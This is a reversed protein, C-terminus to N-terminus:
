SRDGNCPLVALASPVEEREEVSHSPTSASKDEVSLDVDPSLVHNTDEPFPPLADKEAMDIKLSDVQKFGMVGRSSGRPPSVVGDDDLSSGGIRDEEATVDDAPTGQTPPSPSSSSVAPLPKDAKSSERRSLLGKIRENPSATARINSFAFKRPLAKEAVFNELMSTPAGVNKLVSFKEQLYHADLLM